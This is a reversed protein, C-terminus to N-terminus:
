GPPWNMTRGGLVHWHLHQVSQGGDPGINTVLRFGGDAIGTNRAVEQAAEIMALLLDSETEGVEMLSEIHERPIVLIHIPSQPNLDRFAIIDPSDYELAVPIEGSAIKCFICDDM